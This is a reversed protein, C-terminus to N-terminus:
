KNRYIKFNRIYRLVGWDVDFESYEGNRINTSSIKSTDIPLKEMHYKKVNHENIDESRTVYVIDVLKSLEKVDHWKNFENVQDSGIVLHYHKDKGYKHIINKVNDITYPSTDPEIVYNKIYANDLAIQVMFERDYESAVPNKYLPHKAVTVILLSDQLRSLYRIINMHGNHIPDFTGGYIYINNKEMYNM